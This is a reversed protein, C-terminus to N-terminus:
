VAQTTKTPGQEKERLAEDIATIFRVLQAGVALCLQEGHVHLAFLKHVVPGRPQRQM